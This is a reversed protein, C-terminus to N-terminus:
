ISNVEDAGGLIVYAREIQRALKGSAAKVQDDIVCRMDAVKGLSCEEMQERDPKLRSSVVDNFIETGAHKRLIRVAFSITLWGQVISTRVHAAEGTMLGAHNAHHFLEDVVHHLFQHSTRWRNQVDLPDIDKAINGKYLFRVTRGLRFMRRHRLGATLVDNSAEGHLFDPGHQLLVLHPQYRHLSSQTAYPTDKRRSAVKPM